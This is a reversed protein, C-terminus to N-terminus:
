GAHSDAETVWAVVLEEDKNLYDVHTYKIEVHPEEADPYYQISNLKSGEPIGNEVFTAPLNRNQTFIKEFIEPMLRVTIM